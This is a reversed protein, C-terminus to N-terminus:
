HQGIKFILAHQIYKGRSLCVSPRPLSLSFPYTLYHLPLSVSLSAPSLSPCLFVTLSVTLSFSFYFFLASCPSLSLSFSPSVTLFSLSFYNFPLHSLFNSLILYLCLSLSPFLCHQLLFSVTLFFFCHSM